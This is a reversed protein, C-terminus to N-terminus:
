STLMHYGCGRRARWKMVRMVANKWELQGVVDVTGMVVGKVFVEGPELGLILVQSPRTVRPFPEVRMSSPKPDPSRM